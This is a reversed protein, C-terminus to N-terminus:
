DWDGTAVLPAQHCPAFAAFTKIHVSAVMETVNLRVATAVVSTNAITIAKHGISTGSTFANWQGDAAGKVSVEYRSLLYAHSLCLM